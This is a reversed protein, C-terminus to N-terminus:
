SVELFLSMFSANTSLKCSDKEYINLYIRKPIYYIKTSLCVLMCEDAAEQPIVETSLSGAQLSM